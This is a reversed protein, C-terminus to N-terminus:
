ETDMWYDEVAGRYGPEETHKEYIDMISRESLAYDYICLASICGIYSKQFPDGGILVQRCGIQTPMNIHENGRRGNIYYRISEDSADYAICIHCWENLRMARCTSDFFGDKDDSIRYVSIGGDANTYPVFSSFGGEYRMYMLSTWIIDSEPYVWFSITYSNSAFISSPLEVINQLIEGGDFHLAGWKDSIGPVFTIGDGIKKGTNLGNQDSLNDIFPYCIGGDKPIKDKIFDAYTDPYYINSINLKGIADCGCRSLFHRDASSFDGSAVIYKHADKILRIINKITKRGHHEKLDNSIWDYDLMITSASMTNIYRIGIFNSGFNRMSVTVGLDSLKELGTLVRETDRTALTKEQVTIDIEDKSVNYQDFLSELTYILKNDLLMLKSVEICFKVKRTKDKSFQHEDLMKFAKELIYVDLERIFGNSELIPRYEHPTLKSGDERLWIPIIFTLELMGSQMNTLPLLEFIFRDNNVAEPAEDAIRKESRAKEMIDEYFICKSKGSHKAAYMTNDGMKLMDNLTDDPSGKTVAGASLSIVSMGPYGANVSFLETIISSYIDSLSQKDHVSSFLLVFEDGSMRVPYGDQGTFKSLAEATRQLVRDGEEHGYVDNVTKFNDIDIYLLSYEGKMSIVPSKEFLWSRNYIGTLFDRYEQDSM